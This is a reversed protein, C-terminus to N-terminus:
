TVSWYIISVDGTRVYIEDVAEASASFRSGSRPMVRGREGLSDVDVRLGDFAPDNLAADGVPPVM